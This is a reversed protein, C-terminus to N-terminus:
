VHELRQRPVRRGARAAGCVVCGPRLRCTVNMPSERSEEFTSSSRNWREAGSYPEPGSHRWHEAGLNDSLRSPALTPGMRSSLRPAPFCLKSVNMSTPGEPSTILAGPDPGRLA